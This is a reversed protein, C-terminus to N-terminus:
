PFLKFKPPRKPTEFVYEWAEAVLWLPAPPEPAEAFAPPTVAPAPPDPADAPAVLWASVFLKFIAPM